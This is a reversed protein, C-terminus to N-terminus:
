KEGYLQHITVNTYYYMLIEEASAGNKAMGNADYQSMGIGHGLGGGFLVIGDKIPQIYFYVSPLYNGTELMEGDKDQLTQIWAGFLQRIYSENVLEVIGEEFIIQVGLVAGSTSRGTM